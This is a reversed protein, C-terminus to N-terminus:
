ARLCILPLYCNLSLAYSRGVGQYVLALGWVVSSHHARGTKGRTNCASSFRISM